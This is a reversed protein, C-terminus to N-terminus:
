YDWEWSGGIWRGTLGHEPGDLWIFRGLRVQVQIWTGSTAHIQAEVERGEWTFRVFKGVAPTYKNPEETTPKM